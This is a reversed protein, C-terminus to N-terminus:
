ILELSHICFLIKPKTEKNQGKKWKTKKIRSECEYCNYVYVEKQQESTNCLAEIIKRAM